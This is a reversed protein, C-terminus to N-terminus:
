LAYTISALKSKFDNCTNEFSNQAKIFDNVCNGKPRNKGMFKSVEARANLVSDLESKAEPFYLHVLMNIQQFAGSNSLQNKNSIDWADKEAMKGSLVPIFVMYISLVDAEWKAFLSYLEELKSRRLEEKRQAANRNHQAIERNKHGINSLYVSFLTVVATIIATILAVLLQPSLNSITDSLSEM